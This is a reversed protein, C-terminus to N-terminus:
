YGGFILAHGRFLSGKSLFPKDELGKVPLANIYCELFGQLMQFIDFPFTPYGQSIPLTGFIYVSM